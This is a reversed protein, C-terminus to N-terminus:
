ANAGIKQALKRLSAEIQAYAVRYGDIGTGYPDSIDWVVDPTIGYEAPLRTAIHEQLAVVVDFAGGDIAGVNRSQHSSADIGLERLITLSHAAMPRGELKLIGASEARVGDLTHNALWEALPSRSINGECVFLILTRATGGSM